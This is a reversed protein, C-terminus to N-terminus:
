LQPGLLGGVMKNGSVRGFYGPRLGADSFGFCHKGSTKPSREHGQMGTVVGGHQHFAHLLSVEM